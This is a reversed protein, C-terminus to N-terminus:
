RLRFTPAAAKVTGGVEVGSLISGGLVGSGYGIEGDESDGRRRLLM